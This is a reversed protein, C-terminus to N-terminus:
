DFLTSSGISNISDYLDSLKDGSTKDRSKILYSSLKSETIKMKEKFQYLTELLFIETPDPDIKTELEEIINDLLQASESSEMEQLFKKVLKSTNQKM